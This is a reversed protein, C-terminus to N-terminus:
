ENCIGDDCIVTANGDCGTWKLCHCHWMNTEKLWFLKATVGCPYDEHTGICPCEEPPSEANGLEANYTLGHLIVDVIEQVRRPVKAGGTDACVDNLIIDLPDLLRANTGVFASAKTALAHLSRVQDVIDDPFADQRSQTVMTQYVSQYEVLRILLDSETKNGMVYDDTEWYALFKHMRELFPEGQDMGKCMKARNRKLANQLVEIFMSEMDSPYNAHNINRVAVDKSSSVRASISAAPIAPSSVSNDM